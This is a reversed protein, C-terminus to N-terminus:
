EAAELPLADQARLLPRVTITLKPELSYRKEARIEAILADDRFVVYNFADNVLKIINDIDPRGPRLMGLIAAGRKKKSWSAPIAFEARLSLSLPECFTSIGLKQMETQAAMRLAAATNRQPRPTFLHGTRSVRTRAWATPEGLLVVTLPRTM